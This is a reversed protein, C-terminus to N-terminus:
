LPGWHIPRSEGLSCAIVKKRESDGHFGIGCKKTNYYYNGEVELDNAKEGFLIGLSSKWKNLLREPICINGM